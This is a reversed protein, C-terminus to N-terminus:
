LTGDQKGFELNNIMNMTREFGMVSVNEIVETCKEIKERVVPIEEPFWKGLVFDIQMGKPFHNGIGFRLRPYKDTGLVTQIDFLGNHGAHSGATRLRLRSLPLALDDVITLTSELAIKEKEMWYRFAKGSLNMFTTPKICVFLRGKWKIEAVEALRETRFAGEHKQVFADVVDFGINHRSHRYDPGPNGLGVILLKVM